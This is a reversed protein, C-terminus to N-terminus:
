DDEREEVDLIIGEALEEETFPYNQVHFGGQEMVYSLYEDWYVDEESLQYGEEEEFYGQDECYEYYGSYQEFHELQMELYKDWLVADIYETTWLDPMEYHAFISQQTGESEGSLYFRVYITQM